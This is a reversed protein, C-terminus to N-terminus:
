GPLGLGGRGGLLGRGAALAERARALEADEPLDGAELTPGLYRGCSEVCEALAERLEDNERRLLDNERRLARAERLQRALRGFIGAVQSALDAECLEREDEVAILEVRSPGAM